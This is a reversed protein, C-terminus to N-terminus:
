QTRLRKQRFIGGMKHHSLYDPVIAHVSQPTIGLDKLNPYSGTSINDYHLSTIQDLTLPPKPLISMFVAQIRAITFPIPLLVACHHTYHKILQLIQKFTFIQDGTIEFLRIAPKKQILVIVARAVDGVYVPQFKTKGGGILPLFPLISAMKAFLNFFQDEAGFIVSPRLVWSKDFNTFIAEEGAKKAKAYRAQNVDVGLASLHIFQSVGHQACATAINEPLTTMLTTFDGKHKEQLVGVCNIVIDSGAIVNSIFDYETIDGSVAAIQGVAGYPKLFYASQPFRTVIKIRYYEDTLAALQQV